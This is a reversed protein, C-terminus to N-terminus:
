GISQAKENQLRNDHATGYLWFPIACCVKYSYVAGSRTINVATTYTDILCHMQGGNIVILVLDHKNSSGLKAVTYKIVAM